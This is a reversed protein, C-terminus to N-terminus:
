DENNKEGKHILKLQHIFTYIAALSIILITTVIYAPGSMELYSIQFVIDYNNTLYTITATAILALANFGISSFMVITSYKNLPSCVRYLFVMGLINFTLASMAVATEFTYIGFNLLNSQQMLYFIFILSVSVILLVTSPISKKFVTKLFRNNASENNKESILFFAAVGNIVIDWLLFQNFVFPFQLSSNGTFLSALTFIFLMAFVFLTKSACLFAAKQMNNVFRKGENVAVSLSTFSADNMVLDAIKKADNSANIVAISCDARKMALVENDDSGIMAVKKGDEKFAKILMEKQEPTARGFVTYDDYIDRIEEESMGEISTHKSSNDIGAEAAVVSATVNDGSSVVKIAIGKNKFWKLTEFADSRIHDKLIILADAELEGICAEDNLQERGEAVVLVRYGNNMDEECRKLIGMKNKVPVFEPSGIVFTKGGKFTAGFYNNQENFALTNIVGASLELDYKTLLAKAILSNENTARLVNSISQALYEETALVKLPVVKKIELTRDTLSGTKDIVLADIQSLAEISALNQVRISKKSLNSAFIISTVICLVLFVIPLAIVLSNIITEVAIASKESDVFRDQVAFVLVMLGILLFAIVTFLIFVKNISKLFSLKFSKNKKSM